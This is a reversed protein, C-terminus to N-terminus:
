VVKLAIVELSTLFLSSESDHSVQLSEDSFLHSARGRVARQSRPVGFDTVDADCIAAVSVSAALLQLKFLIAAVSCIIARFHM